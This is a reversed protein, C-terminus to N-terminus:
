APRQTQCRGPPIWSSWPFSCPLPIFEDINTSTEGLARRARCVEDGGGETRFVSSSRTRSAYVSGIAKLSSQMRGRVAPADEGFVLNRSSSLKSLANAPGSTMRASIRGRARRLPPSLHCRALVWSVIRIRAACGRQVGVRKQMTQHKRRTLPSFPPAVARIELSKEGLVSPPLTKAPLILPHREGPNYM